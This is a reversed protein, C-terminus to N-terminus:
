AYTKTTSDYTIGYKVMTTVKLWIRKGEDIDKLIKTRMRPINEHYAKRNRTSKQINLERNEFYRLSDYETKLIQKHEPTLITTEQITDSM